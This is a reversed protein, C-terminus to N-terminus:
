IYQIQFQEISLGNATINMHDAFMNATYSSLFTSLHNMFIFFHMSTGPWIRNPCEVVVVVCKRYENALKVSISKIPLIITLNNWHTNGRSAYIYLNQLLYQPLRPWFGEKLYLLIFCNLYGKDTNLYCKNAINLPFTFPKGINQKM